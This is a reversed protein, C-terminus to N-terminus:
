GDFEWGSVDAGAANSIAWWADTTPLNDWFIGDEARWLMGNAATVTADVGLYLVQGQTLRFFAMARAANAAMLQVATAGVSIRIPARKTAM